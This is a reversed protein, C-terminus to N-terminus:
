KACEILENLLDRLRARGLEYREDPIAFMVRKSWDRCEIQDRTLSLYADRSKQFGPRRTEDIDDLILACEDRVRVTSAQHADVLKENPTTDFSDRLASIAAIFERKRREKTSSAALERNRQDRWVALAHNIRPVVLYGVLAILASILYPELFEM